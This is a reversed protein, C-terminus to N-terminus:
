RCGRSERLLADSMGDRKEARLADSVGDRKKQAYHMVEMWRHTDHVARRGDAFTM